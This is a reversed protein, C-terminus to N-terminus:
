TSARKQRWNKKPNAIPIVAQKKNRKRVRTTPITEDETVRNTQDTETETEPNWGM